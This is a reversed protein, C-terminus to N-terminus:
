NWESERETHASNYKKSYRVHASCKSFCRGIKYLPLLTGSSLEGNNSNGNSSHIETSKSRKRENLQATSETPETSM